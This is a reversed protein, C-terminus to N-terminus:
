RPLRMEAAEPGKKPVEGWRIEVKQGEDLSRIKCRELTTAHVFVDKKGEGRVLFGFGKQPNYFKVTAPEWISTPKVPPHVKKPQKKQSSKSQLGLARLIMGM